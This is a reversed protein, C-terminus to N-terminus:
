LLLFTILLEGTEDNIVPLRTYVLRFGLVDDNQECNLDRNSEFDFNSPM